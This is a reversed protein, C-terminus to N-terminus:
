VFVILIPTVLTLTSLISCFPHGEFCERSVELDNHITKFKVQDVHLPVFESISDSERKYEVHVVVHIAVVVDFIFLTFVYVLGVEILLVVVVEWAVVITIIM